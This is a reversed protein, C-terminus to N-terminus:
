FPCNPKQGPPTPACCDPMGEAPWDTHGRLRYVDVGRAMHQMAAWMERITRERTATLEFDKEMFLIVDASSNGVLYAIGGAALVNGNREQTEYIDFGFEKGLARDVDTPSNIFLMREDVIDLLGYKKWSELSNRFSLPAKYTITAM